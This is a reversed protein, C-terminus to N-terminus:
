WRGRFFVLVTSTGRALDAETWAAGGALTTAFAPVRAGVRAPGDYPSVTSAALALWELAALLAFGVLVATRWFGRRQWVSLAVCVVGVTTLTPVYWPVTLFRMGLQVAYLAPSLLCLLVGALFLARRRPPASVAAQGTPSTTM